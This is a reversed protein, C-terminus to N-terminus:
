SSSLTPLTAAVRDLWAADVPIDMSRAALILAGVAPPFRPM